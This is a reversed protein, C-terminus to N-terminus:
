AAVGTTAESRVPSAVVRGMSCATCVALDPGLVACRQGGAEVRRLHTALRSRRRRQGAQGPGGRRGAQACCVARRSGLAM